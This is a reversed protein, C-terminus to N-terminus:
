DDVRVLDVITICGELTEPLDSAGGDGRTAEWCGYDEITVRYPAGEGPGSAGPAPDGAVVCDFEDESGQCRGTFDSEAEGRLSYALSKDSVGIVTAPRYLLGAIAAIAVLILLGFFIKAGM